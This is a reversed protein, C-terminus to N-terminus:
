PSPSLGAQADHSVTLQVPWSGESEMRWINYRGTLNTSLFVHKGDVSWAADYLGRSVALDDIPIPAADSNEPSTVSVPDTIVRDPVPIAAHVPSVLCLLILTTPRM